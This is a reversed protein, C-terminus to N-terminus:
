EWRAQYGRTDIHIFGSHHATPKYLGIGGKYDNSPHTKKLNVAINYLIRADSINVKDDQNLDDMRGDKSTDVFIDAADGYIHRSYQVNGIKKNYFPTRYGSIFGFTEINYGKQRVHKLLDELLMLLNEKLILFKPYGSTQKCLFQRLRFHPTLLIDKDKKDVRIFGAPTTYRISKLNKPPPYAGIRYGEVKGHTMRNYPALVFVNIKVSTGNAKNKGKLEYMGPTEPANFRWNRIFKRNIVRNEFIFTLNAASNKVKLSIPANPVVFISFIPLNIEFGNVKITQFKKTDGAFATTSTSVVITLILISLYKM